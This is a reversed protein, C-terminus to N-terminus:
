GGGCRGKRSDGRQQVPMNRLLWLGGPAGKAAKVAQKVVQAMQGGLFLQFPNKVPPAEVGGKKKKGKKPKAAAAAAAAEAAAAKKARRAENREKRLRARREEDDEDDEEEESEEDPPGPPLGEDESSSDDDDGDVDWDQGILAQIKTWLNNQQASYGQLHHVHAADCPVNLASSMRVSRFIAKSTTPM